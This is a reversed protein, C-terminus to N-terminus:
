QSLQYRLQVELPQSMELPEVIDMNRVILSACPAVAIGLFVAVLYLDLLRVSSDVAQYHIPRSPQAAQTEKQNLITLRLLALSSRWMMEYCLVYCSFTM